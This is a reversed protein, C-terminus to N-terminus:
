PATLVIESAVSTAGAAATVVVRRLRVERGRRHSLVRFLGSPTHAPKGKGDRNRGIKMTIRNENLSGFPRKLRVHCPKVSSCQFCGNATLPRPSAILLDISIAKMEVTSATPSPVKM